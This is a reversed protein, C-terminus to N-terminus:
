DGSESVQLKGEMRAIRRDFSNHKLMREEGKDFREDFSEFKSEMTKNMNRMQIFGIVLALIVIGNNGKLESILIEIM